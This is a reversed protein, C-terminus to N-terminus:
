RALLRLVGRRLSADFLPDEGVLSIIKQNSASLSDLAGSVQAREFRAENKRGIRLVYLGHRSGHIGPRFQDARRM